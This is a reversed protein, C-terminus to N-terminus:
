VPPSSFATTLSQDSGCIAGFDGQRKWINVFQSAAIQPQLHEIRQDILPGFEQSLADKTGPRIELMVQPAIADREKPQLCAVRQCGKVNEAEGQGVLLEVGVHKGHEVQGANGQAGAVAASGVWQHDGAARGTVVGFGHAREEVGHHDPLSFFDNEFYDRRILLPPPALPSPRPSSDYVLEGNGAM